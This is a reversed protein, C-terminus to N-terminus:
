SVRRNWAAIADAENLKYGMGTGCKSCDVCANGFSAETDTFERVFLEGPAGCFPCPKLEDM